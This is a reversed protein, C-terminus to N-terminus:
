EEDASRETDSARTRARQGGVFLGLVSAAALGLLTGGLLRGPAPRAPAPTMVRRYVDLDESPPPTPRPRARREPVPVWRSLYTFHDSACIPCQQEDHVEECDLCLRARRLQM